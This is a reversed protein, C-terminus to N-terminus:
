GHHLECTRTMGQACLRVSQDTAPPQLMWAVIWGSEIIWQGYPIDPLPLLQAAALREITFSNDPQDVVQAAQFDILAGTIPYQWKYFAEKATFIRAVQFGRSPAPLCELRSLEWPTCVMEWLAAEIEAVPEIDIGIAEHCSRRAVAVVCAGDTHSISGILDKPWAPSRDPLVSIAAAPMGLRHMATRVAARGAAFERRRSEVARAVFAREEPWLTAPDGDTGTCVIRVNAGLLHQLRHELTQLRM